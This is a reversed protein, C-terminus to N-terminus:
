RIREASMAWPGPNLTLGLVGGSEVDFRIADRAPGDVIFLDSGAPILEYSRDEDFYIRGDGSFTASATTGDTRIVLHGGGPFEYEGAYDRLRSADPPMAARSPSEPVTPVSSLVADWAVESALVGLDVSRLDENDVDNTTVAYLVDGDAETAFPQIARAMSTHVQVALRQLQAFSLRQNTVVLTLTTNSTPGGEESVPAETRNGLTGGMLEIIPPCPTEAGNRHCRVVEGSRDVITGLANVVTFVAVKTPGTQVFAGGQGSHPWRAYADAGRGDVYYVGQMAFRGAGHAGLPFRNPRAARLAANGLDDDPTVRSFRRGGVDYIIGGLVAAIYDYEGEERKV